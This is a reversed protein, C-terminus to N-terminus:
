KLATGMRGLRELGSWYIYNARGVIDALPVFGGKGQNWSRSDLSDDRNDGMVFYSGDPVVYPGGTGIPSSKDYQLVEYSVGNPLQESLRMAKLRRLATSEAFEGIPQRQMPKGNISLVGNMLTLRDGPLGVVRKIYLVPQDDASVRFGAKDSRLLFIIIDGYEPRRGGSYAQRDVFFYDGVLLTPLMSGSPQHFARWGLTYMVLGSITLLAVLPILISLGVWLFTRRKPPDQEVSPPPPAQDTM